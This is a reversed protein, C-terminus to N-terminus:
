TEEEGGAGHAKRAARELRAIVEREYPDRRAKGMLFALAETIADYMDRAALALDEQSPEQRM